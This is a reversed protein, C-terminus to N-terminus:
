RPRESETRPPEYPPWARLIRTRRSRALGLLVGGALAILGGALVPVWGWVFQGDFSGTEDAIVGLLQMYFVSAVLIGCGVSVGARGTSVMAELRQVNGGLM